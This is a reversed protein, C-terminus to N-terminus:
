RQRSKGAWGSPPASHLREEFDHRYGPKLKSDVKVDTEGIRKNERDLFYIRIKTTLVISNGKNVIVGKLTDPHTQDLTVTELAFNDKVYLAVRDKHAKETKANRSTIQGLIRITQEADANKSTAKIRWPVLLPYYDFLKSSQNLKKELDIIDVGMNSISLTDGQGQPLDLHQILIVNTLPNVNVQFQPSYDFAFRLGNQIIWGLALHWCLAAVVLISSCIIVLRPM